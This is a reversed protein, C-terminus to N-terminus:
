NKKKQITKRKTVTKKKKQVTKRKTVTKKKKQVTKRKTSANKKAYESKPKRSIRRRPVRFQSYDIPSSLEDDFQALAWDLDAENVSSYTDYKQNMIDNYEKETWQTKLGLDKGANRFKEYESKSKPKVMPAPAIYGNPVNPLSDIYKLKVRAMQQAIIDQVEPDDDDPLGYYYPNFAFQYKDLNNMTNKYNIATNRNNNYWSM